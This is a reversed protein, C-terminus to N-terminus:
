GRVSLMAEGPANAQREYLRAIERGVMLKVMREHEIDSRALEGAVKGDRLVLVRDAIQKVEGLRHSIYLVSIGRCKLDRVVSFLQETEHQSLSSTPEDMILIRADVSLAKAIEVMQQQAASLTSVIADP